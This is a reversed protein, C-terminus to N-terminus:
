ISLDKVSGESEEKKPAFFVIYLILVVLTVPTLLPRIKEWLESRSM